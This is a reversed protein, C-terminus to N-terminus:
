KWQTAGTVEYATKRLPDLMARQCLIKILKEATGDISTDFKNNNDLRIDFQRSIRQRTNINKLINLAEENFAVFKRPNHKSQAVTEFKEFNSIIDACKIVEIDKECIKKYARPMNFLNEGSLTFFYIDGDIIIVDTSIILHLVDESIEKYSAKDISFFRHKLRIIPKRMSILKVSILKEDIPIQGKIIYASNYNKVNSEVDPSAIAEILNKYSSAIMDNNQSLKYIVLSDAGGDYDNVATYKYFIGENVNFYKNAINFVIESLKENPELLIRRTAYSTTDSKSNSIKLLQISWEVNCGSALINFVTKLRDISM